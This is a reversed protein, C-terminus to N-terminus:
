KSQLKFIQDCGDCTAKLFVRLVLCPLYQNEWKLSSCIWRSEERGRQCSGPLLLSLSSQWPLLLCFPSLTQPLTCLHACRLSQVATFGSTEQPALIHIWGRKSWRWEQKQRRREPSRMVAPVHLSYWILHQQAQLPGEERLEFAWWTPYIQPCTRSPTDIGHALAECSPLATVCRGVLFSTNM